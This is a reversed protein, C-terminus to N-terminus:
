DSSLNDLSEVLIGLESLKQGILAQRLREDSLAIKIQSKAKKGLKELRDPYGGLAVLEDITDLISQEPSKM